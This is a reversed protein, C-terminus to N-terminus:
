LALQMSNFQISGLASGFQTLQVYAILAAPVDGLSSVISLLCLAPGDAACSRRVARAQRVHSWTRVRVIYM